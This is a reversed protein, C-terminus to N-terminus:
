GRLAVCTFEEWGVVDEQVMGVWRGGGGCGGEADVSM